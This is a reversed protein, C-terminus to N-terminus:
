ERVIADAEFWTECWTALKPGRERPLSWEHTGRRWYADGHGPFTRRFDKILIWRVRELETEIRVLLRAGEQRVHVTAIDAPVHLDEDLPRYSAPATTM